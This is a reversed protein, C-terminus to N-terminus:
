NYLKPDQAMVASTEHNTDNSSLDGVSRDIGKPRAVFCSVGTTGLSIQIKAFLWSLMHYINCIVHGLHRVM